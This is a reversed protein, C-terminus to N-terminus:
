ESAALRGLLARAREYEGALEHARDQSWEESESLWRALTTADLRASERHALIIFDFWRDRDRPHSAGTSKNALVSFRRLAEIVHSTAEDELRLTNSSIDVRYGARSAAPTAVRTVFDDLIANYAGYTLESVARPVINVVKMGDASSILVLGAAEIGPTPEREFALAGEEGMVRLQEEKESAHRWPAAAFDKLARALAEASGAPGRLYLDQFVELSKSSSM